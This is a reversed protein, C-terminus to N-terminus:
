SCCPCGYNQWEALDFIVSINHGMDDKPDDNNNGEFELIRKLDNEGNQIAVTLYEDLANRFGYQTLTQTAKVLPIVVTDEICNTGEIATMFEQTKDRLSKDIKKMNKLWNDTRCQGRDTLRYLPRINFAPFTAQKNGYKRLNKAHSSELKSIGTISGSESIWIRYCPTNPLTNYERHWNISEVKFEDLIKSLAYLENLM